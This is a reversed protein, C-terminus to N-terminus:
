NKTLDDIEEDEQDELLKDVTREAAEVLGPNLLRQRELWADAQEPTPHTHKIRKPREPM